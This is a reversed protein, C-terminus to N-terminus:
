HPFYVRFLAITVPVFVLPIFLLYRKPNKTKFAGILFGITYIVIVAITLRAIEEAAVAGTYHNDYNKNAFDPMFYIWWIFYLALASLSLINSKVFNIAKVM